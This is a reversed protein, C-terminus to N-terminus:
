SFLKEHSISTIVSASCLGSGMSVRVVGNIQDRWEDGDSCIVNTNCDERSSDNHTGYYNLIDTYDHIISDITLEIDDLEAQPVTLELIIKEGKVISTSFTTDEKNNKSTLSGLFYTQEEDYIYLTANDTLYFEGFNLGIGYAGDSSIGLLYTVDGNDNISTSSNLVNIDMDYEHGYIFVMPDFGRDVMPANDVSLYNIDLSRNNFFKPTGGSEIQAFSLGILCITTLIIKKM